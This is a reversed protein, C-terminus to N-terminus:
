RRRGGVATRVQWVSVLLRVGSVSDAVLCSPQRRAGHRRDMQGNCTAECGKDFEEHRQVKFGFIETYFDVTAELDGVKFVWHLPRCPRISSAGSRRARSSAFAAVLGAAAVAGVGVATWRAAPTTLGVSALLRSVVTSSSDSSSASSSAAGAPSAMTSPPLCAAPPRVSLPLRSPVSGVSSLCVPLCCDASAAAAAPAGTVPWLLSRTRASWWAM